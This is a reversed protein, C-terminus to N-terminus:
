GIEGLPTALMLLLGKEKSLANPTVGLRCTLASFETKCNKVSVRKPSDRVHFKLQDSKHFLLTMIILTVRSLLLLQDQQLFLRKKILM